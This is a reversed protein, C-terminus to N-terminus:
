SLAIIENSAAISKPSYPYMIYGHPDNLRRANAFKLIGIGFCTGRKASPQFQHFLVIPAADLLQAPHEWGGIRRGHLAAPGNGDEVDAAVIIAKDGSDVVVCAQDIRHQEQGM